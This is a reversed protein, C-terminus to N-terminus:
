PNTHVLNLAIKYILMPGVTGVLEGYDDDYPDFSQVFVFLFTIGVCVLNICRDNAIIVSFHTFNTSTKRFHTCFFVKVQFM